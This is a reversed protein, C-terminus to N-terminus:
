PSNPVVLTPDGLLVWNLGADDEMSQRADRVAEGLTQGRLLQGDLVAGVMAENDEYSSLTAAGHVAVAGNAAGPISAGSSDVRYGNMLRHALTDSVPSVFYSTYCTLTNVLTPRGENDLDRIHRASLLGQFTWTGPSGHGTFGTLTQGQSLADFLETRATEAVSKSPLPTVQDFYIRTVNEAPWPEAGDGALPTALRDIMREAQAVFSPVSPDESDTVWTSTMLSATGVSPTEWDMVKRVTAELDALTRVPWRGIAKDGRRDGDLDTMLADNPAHLTSGGNTYLTPIFSLSGLGRVDHYDYSDGGVLLVHSYDFADDAAALFRSLAEPLPMGGGFANQIDLISIMRVRWGQSERTAVYESLPHGDDGPSPLFAPHAIVLYDASEALLDEPELAGLVEPAHIADTTSVWIASFLGNRRHDAPVTATYTRSGRDRRLEPRLTTLGSNTDRAYAVVEDSSLGSVALGGPKLGSEVQLRDADAVTSGPYWATITDVYVMDFPADTGGPLSVVVTNDGPRLLGAPLAFTLTRAVQGGFDRFGLSQGNLSVEVRHDIEIAPIDTAGGVHVDLRGGSADLLNDGIPLTATYALPGWPHLLSQAYWPDASPNFLEYHLDDDLRMPFLAVTSGSRERQQVRDADIVSQPDIAVRYVYHEIYLADPLDPLDGWFDISDGPGFQGRGRSAVIERAVPEGGRTVAISDPRLGALDLGAAALSEYTVRQMGAETVLLEVVTEDHDNVALARQDSQAAAKRWRKNKKGFGKAAMTSDHEARVENWRIPELATEEGYREGPTFPGYYERRGRTDVTALAIGDIEDRDLDRPLLVRERYSQPTVADTSNSRVIDESLKVWRGGASAFLEFGLNRTESATTWNARMANGTLRSDFSALSVPLSGAPYYYDEVEGDTALGAFDNQGLSGGPATAGSSFIRFRAGLNNLLYNFAAGVTVTLNHTGNTLGTFSVFEQLDGVGGVGSYNGDGNWDFWAGLTAGGAPANSVTVQITQTSGPTWASTVNIVVGDEEDGDGTADNTPVGDTETQLSAGLYPGSVKYYHRAGNSAILTSYTNPLDGFDSLTPDSPPTFPDDEGPIDKSPSHHSQGTIFYIPQNGCNAGGAGLPVSWEYVM